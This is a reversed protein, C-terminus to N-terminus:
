HREGTVATHILSLDPTCLASCDQKGVVCKGNFLAFYRISPFHISKIRSQTVGRDEGICLSNLFMNYDTTQPKALSGWLPLKCAVSFEELSLSYSKNYLNVMVRNNHPHYRFGHTFTYTLNYRQVCKDALFDTLGTNEIFHDFEEKIGANIMFVDSPWRCSKADAMVIQNAKPDIYGQRVSSESLSEGSSRRRSASRRFFSM